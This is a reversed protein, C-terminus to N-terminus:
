RPTDRATASRSRVGARGPMSTSCSRALARRSCPPPRPLRVRLRPAVPAARAIRAHRPARPRCSCCRSVSRLRRSSARCPCTEFFGVVAGVVREIQAQTLEPYIPLALVEHAARETVPLQGVGYGLDAFCPQLHLPLPYYIESGISREALHARLADRRPTRVVYQHYVHGAEVREPTSFLEPALGAQAFLRDYSAANTRRSETWGELHPLKVRLIAAQMADIRFNGGIAEHFYRQRSGHVRLSRMREALADDNTTVLGADGFASLNKTPYFSTWGALGISGTMGLPTRALVSQAADELLPLGHARGVELLSGMDCPQGYLHVPVIAKTRPTVAAAVRAPDLNYTRPEIDVFVPRAGLRSICGATAFFTFPTTIVEDGPGIGLAMLVLLQADTGSSVGIAHKVELLAAIEREFAAVEEGLVFANKAFLRDLAVRVAPLLPGNHPGLDLMPIPPENSM